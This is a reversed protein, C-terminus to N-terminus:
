KVIITAIMSPHFQCHYSYTGAKNFTYHFSGTQAALPTATGGSSFAGTDSTVTHPADTKNQWIITTNVPITISKPSFSFSGSSDQTITVTKSAGTVATTPTPTTKSGNGYGGNGYGGSGTDSTATAAVTPTTTSGSGYPGGTSGTNSGCAALVALLITLVLYFGGRRIRYLQKATM